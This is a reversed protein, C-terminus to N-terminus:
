RSVGQGSPATLQFPTVAHQGFLYGCGPALSDAPMGHRAQLWRWSDAPTRGLVICNGSGAVASRLAASGGFADLDDSQTILLVAVGLDAGRRVIELLRDPGIYRFVNQLVDRAEGIVVLLRPEKDTPTFRSPTAPDQSRAWARADLVAEVDVLFAEAAALHDVAMWRSVQAGIRVWWRPEAVWVDTHGARAATRTILEFLDERHPIDPGILAGSRMGTGDYLRYEPVPFWRRRRVLSTLRSWVTRPRRRLDLVGPHNGLVVSGALFTGAAAPTSMATPGTMSVEQHDQSHVQNTDQSHVQSHHPRPDPRATM